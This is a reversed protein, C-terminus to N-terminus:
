KLAYGADVPLTIGTIYRAEDSALFLLANAIDSPEVWPVPLANLSRYVPEVDELTPDDLDPRFLRFNVDNILMPTQVTTPHISNVRISHAALELALTKMLGVLGSKAAGYPALGPVLKLAISSSIITISGGGGGAILHPIAPKVTNYVGSLNTDLVAQWDSASTEAVSGPIGQIGANAVVIDLRGLQAVGDALLATVAEPERADARTAIIRRDFKEVLRITEALDEPTAAPAGQAPVPGAVDFAIIDAGEEALRVAHARGQGRAAGSIFAVKGEVRGAM